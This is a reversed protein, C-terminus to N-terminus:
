LHPFPPIPIASCGLNAAKAVIKATLTAYAATLEALLTISKALPVANANIMATIWQIVSPLDTPVTSLVQLLQINSIATDADKILSQMVSTAYAILDDCDKTADIKDAMSQIVKPDLIATPM